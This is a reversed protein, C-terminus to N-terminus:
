KDGRQYIFEMILEYRKTLGAMGEFRLTNRFGCTM